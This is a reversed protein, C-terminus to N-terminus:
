FSISSSSGSDLRSTQSSPQCDHGCKPVHPKASNPQNTLAPLWKSLGLERKGQKRRKTREKSMFGSQNLYSILVANRYRNNSPSVLPVLMKISISCIELLWHGAGHKNSVVMLIVTVDQMGSKIRLIFVYYMCFWLVVRRSPNSVYATFAIGLSSAM